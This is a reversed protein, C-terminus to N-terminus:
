RPKPLKSNDSPSLSSGYAGAPTASRRRWPHDERPTPPHANNPKKVPEVVPPANAPITAGEGYKRVFYTQMLMHNTFRRKCDKHECVSIHNVYRAYSGSAGEPSFGCAFGPEPIRTLEFRKLGHYPAKM